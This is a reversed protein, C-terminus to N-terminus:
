TGFYRDGFDGLGPVIYAKSNLRHDVEGVLVRVQPHEAAVARLGEPAAVISLMVISEEAVGARKLVRVAENTSGGTALMPDVLLVTRAGVDKPLKSGFERGTWKDSWRVACGASLM